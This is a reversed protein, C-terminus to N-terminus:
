WFFGGIMGIIVAVSLTLAIKLKGPIGLTGKKDRKAFWHTLLAGFTIAIMYPLYRYDAGWVRIRESYTNGEVSDFNLYFDFGILAATVFVVFYGINRASLM